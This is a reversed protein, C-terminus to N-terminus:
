YTAKGSPPPTLVEPIYTPNFVKYYAVQNKLPLAPIALYPLSIVCDDFYATEAKEEKETPDENLSIFKNASLNLYAGAGSAKFMLTITFCLILLYKFKGLNM